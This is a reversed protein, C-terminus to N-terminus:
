LNELLRRGHIVALIFISNETCRYIMRYSYIFRERLQEDQMEPVTRGLYPFQLIDNALAFIEEVVKGAYLRSDRAIYQAIADLDDLAAQTWILQAAM